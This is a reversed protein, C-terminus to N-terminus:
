KKVKSKFRLLEQSGDIYTVTISKTTEYWGQNVLYKPVAKPRYNVVVKNNVKDHTPKSCGCSSVMKYIGPLKEKGEFEITYRKGVYVVGLNVINKKFMGRM